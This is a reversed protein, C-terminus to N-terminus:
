KGPFHTVDGSDVPSFGLSGPSAKLDKTLSAPGPGLALSTSLLWVRPCWLPWLRPLVCGVEISGTHAWISTCPLADHSGQAHHTKRGLPDSFSCVPLSTQIQGQLWSAIFPFAKWASPMGSAFADGVEGWCLTLELCTTKDAGSPIGGDLPKHGRGDPYAGGLVERHWARKLYSETGHSAVM